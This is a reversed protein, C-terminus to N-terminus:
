ARWWTAHQGRRASRQHHSVAFSASSCWDATLAGRGRLPHSAPACEPARGSPRQSGRVPPRLRKSHSDQSCVSPYLKVTPGDLYALSRAPDSRCSRRARLPTRPTRHSQQWLACSGARTALAPSSRKASSTRSSLQLHLAHSGLRPIPKNHDHCIRWFHSM